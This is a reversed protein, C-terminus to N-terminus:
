SIGQAHVAIESGIGYQVGAFFKASFRVNESLDKDTMDLLSVNNWDNLLNTGFWLNSPQAMVMASASMGPCVVIEYMGNWTKPVEPGAYAYWGNGSAQQAYVFSEWVNISVYMRPKETAGKIANPVKAILAKMQAIVNSSTIAAPSAVKNVTADATFLTLFGDYEGTTGNVGQWIVTENKAAIGALMNAIIADALGMPLDGNQAAGADWDAIFDNKCLQRQVQFKELTLIRETITVTGTPTFDCTGAAFTIDDVLKKVVQKYDINQKVTIYQLTDNAIFVQRLYDGARKGAYTTTLSTTTAM